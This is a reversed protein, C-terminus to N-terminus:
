PLLPWVKAYLWRAPQRLLLTIISRSGARIKARGLMGTKLAGDRNPIEVEAIVFRDTGKGKGDDGEERIHAGVRTVRGHFSRTPYPNVKVDVAQGTQVLSSDEEPVAVEVNVTGVDAVVCFEAGRPFNQGVREELRPTVIVGAAPARLRTYDFRQQEMAIRAKLEDARTQAEFLASVNGSSQQKAVDSEAVAFAAQADALAARYSEDNLTAIIEGEPVVDGERHRVSAVIGDVGAAVVARHGPLVRAPGGVRLRWPVLFLVAAVLATSLGWLLRRHRPIALLRRRRELLPKWFGALPVQQYLQANRVAVTAQNVLIQLLDRTEEDFVIPERSEFALVGLQGEEDKLIVAYYAKLETERFLARFKEETEPRDATFGGEAETVNVDSGSLYVWQLLEETRRIEASKRDVETMGSVAGVRLRGGHQIAIACRDYRILAASANVITQMVRDLDLTATIERSVALLADLEEVKKEAEYTRANRLARVAQRSLDELLEEDEPTFAPSRGRKNAVVLAGIPRDDETLPVGLLSRVHAAGSDPESEPIRNRRIAVRDALLDGVVDAGVAEPPSEIEYNENVAAAALTASEDDELLWLSGAEAGAFDVAKRVVIGALEEWEITSGFAKSVDYLSTLREIARLMGASRNESRSSRELAAAAHRLIPALRRDVDVADPKAEFSLAAVGVVAPASGGTAVPVLMTWPAPGGSPDAGFRLAAPQGESPAVVRPHRDRLIDRLLPEERSVSRRGKDPAHAGFTGTVLMLPHTPDFTWVVSAQAGAARACWRAVWASVQALNECAVLESLASLETADQGGITKEPEDPM